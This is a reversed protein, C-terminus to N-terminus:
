YDVRLIQWLWILGIVEALACLGLVTWGTTSGLFGEVHEPEALAYVLLMLPAAAGIAIAVVRAQATAAFFQNRFQNRDRVSDALRELLLVLNGGTQSYLGATSALLDFDPLGVREATSQLAAAPSMGLRMLGVTHTFEDALPKSGREAYFELAQELTQGVRVSGALMRFADPLQEQLRRRFRRHYFWVIALPILCGLVVGLGALTLSEKWLWVGGGFLVAVLLMVATVGTPSADLGSRRVATDFWTDFRGRTGEPEPPVFKTLEYSSDGSSRLRADVARGANAAARVILAVALAAGGVAVAFLAEYTGM